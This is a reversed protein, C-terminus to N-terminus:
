KVQDPFRAAAELVEYIPIAYTDTRGARAINVGLLEGQLNVLPSGCDRPHMLTDHQFVSRFGTRRPSVDSGFRNMLAQREVINDWSIGIRLQIDLLQGERSAFFECWDGPECERLMASLWSRKTVPSERDELLLDGKKLGAQAAGSNALVQTIMLGSDTEDVAMGLYGSGSDIKRPAAGLVGVGLPLPEQFGLSIVWQGPKLEATLPVAVRPLALGELKLFLLDLAQDYGLFRAECWTEKDLRCRFRDAASVRKGLESAKAVVWGQEADILTGPVSLQDNIRVQTAFHRVTEILERFASKLLSGHRTAELELTEAGRAMGAPLTLLLAALGVIVWSNRPVSRCGSGLLPGRNM